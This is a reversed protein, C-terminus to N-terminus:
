KILGLKFYALEVYETATRRSLHFKDMATFVIQKFDPTKEKDLLKGIVTTLENIQATRREQRMGIVNMM